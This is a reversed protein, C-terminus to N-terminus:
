PMVARPGPDFFLTSKLGQVHADLFGPMVSWLVLVVAVYIELVILITLFFGIALFTGNELSVALRQANSESGVEYEEEPPSYARRKIGM